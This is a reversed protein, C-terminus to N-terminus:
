RYLTERDHRQVYFYRCDIGNKLGFVGPDDGRAGHNRNNIVKAYTYTLAPPADGALLRSM